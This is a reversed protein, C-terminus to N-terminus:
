WAGLAVVCVIDADILTGSANSAIAKTAGAVHASAAALDFYARTGFLGCSGVAAYNATTFDANWNVTFNGTGVDTISSVNISDNITGGAGVMTFNIWGKAVSLSSKLSAPTVVRGTDTGTQVETTTALEAVGAATDSAKVAEGHKAVLRDM